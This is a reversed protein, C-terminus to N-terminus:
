SRSCGSETRGRRRLLSRRGQYEEQVGMDYSKRCRRSAISESRVSAVAIMAGALFVCTVRADVMGTVNVHSIVWPFMYTCM